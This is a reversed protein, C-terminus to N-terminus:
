AVYKNLIDSLTGAVGQQLGQFRVDGSDTKWIEAFIVGTEIDTHESTSINDYSIGVAGSADYLRFAAGDVMSFNQRRKANEFINIGVLMKCGPELFATNLFFTEDDGDGEGTRNDKTLLALINAADAQAKAMVAAQDVCGAYYDENHTGKGDVNGYWYFQNQDTVKGNKDLYIAFLDLDCDQNNTKAMNPNWSGGCRFISVGPMSKGLSLTMGPAAKTETLQM